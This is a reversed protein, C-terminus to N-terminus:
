RAAVTFREQIGRRAPKVALVIVRVRPDAGVIGFAAILEELMALSLSNRTASRNLTILAVAGSREYTITSYSM